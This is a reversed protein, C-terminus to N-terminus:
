TRIDDTPSRTLGSRVPPLRLLGEKPDEPTPRYEEGERGAGRMNPAERGGHTWAQEPQVRVFEKRSIQAANSHPSIERVGPTAESSGPAHAQDLRDPLSSLPIRYSPSLVQVVRGVLHRVDCPSPSSRPLLSKLVASRRAPTPTRRAFSPGHSALRDASM